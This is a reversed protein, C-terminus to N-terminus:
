PTATATPVATPAVTSLNVTPLGSPSGINFICTSGSDKCAAISDLLGLWYGASDGYKQKANALAIANLGGQAATGSDTTTKLPEVDEVTFRVPSCVYTGVGPKSPDPWGSNGSGCFLDESFGFRARIADGFYSSMKDALAQYQAPDHTQWVSDDVEFTARRAASDVAPGFNESLMGNWGATSFNVDGGQDGTSFCTYKFCVSYFDKLAQDSQNLTWFATSAITVQVGSKTTAKTLTGRDGVKEGNANVDTGDNIIYNRSNCPVYEVTEGQLSDPISQGPYVITHVRADYGDTGSGVVYACTAAQPSVSCATLVLSLVVVMLVAIVIGKRKM